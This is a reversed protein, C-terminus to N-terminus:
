KIVKVTKSANMGTLIMFYTGSSLTELQELKLMGSNVSPMESLVRGNLDVLKLSQIIGDKNDVSISHNFPNPYVAVQNLLDQEELGLTSMWIQSGDFYVVQEIKFFDNGSKNPCYVSITLNYYGPNGILALTDSIYVTDTPSYVAWTVYLSQTSSSYVAQYLAASDITTYDIVCNTVLDTYLTDNITGNPYPNNSYTSSSDAIIFNVTTSDSGSDWITVSYVGACLNSVSSGTSGNSWEIMYPTIGGSIFVFASGDCNGTLDDTTNVSVSFNTITGISDYVFVTVTAACGNADECTLTYTGNCLNSVSQTTAGNSWLYTYPAIGNVPNATASGDCSVPNSAFVVSYPISFNACPNSGLVISDSVTVNCGINDTCVVSLNYTGVCLNTISQTTVANSWNFSYPPTGGSALVTITGDCIGVGSPGASTITGSFNACPSQTNQIIFNVMVTDTADWVLVYYNSPCLNNISSTTEGNSWLYYYPGVGGTPSVSASGICSGTSDDTSTLNVVFPALSTSDMVTANLTATCGINDECLIAYTGICMGNFTSSSQPAFGSTSFVYPGTGGNAAVQISGDCTGPITVDTVSASLTLGLCPDTIIVPTTAVCGSADMCYAPYNGSCLNTIPSVPSQPAGGLSYTYPASGGNPLFSVSGDCNGPTPDTISVSLTFNSCPNTIIFSYYVSDQIADMILVSYSGACLNSISPTTAGTNWLYTYGGAGGTPAAAATGSCSMTNDNTTTVNPIIQATALYSSTLTILLLVISYLHRM